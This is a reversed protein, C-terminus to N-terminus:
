ATSLSKLCRVHVFLIGLPRKQDETRDDDGSNKHETEHTNGLIRAQQWCGHQCGRHFLNGYVHVDLRRPPDAHVDERIGVDTKPSAWRKVDSRETASSSIGSNGQREFGGTRKIGGRRRPVAGGRIGQIREPFLLDRARTQRDNQIRWKQFPRCTPSPHCDVRRRTVKNSKRRRILRRRSGRSAAQVLAVSGTCSQAELVWRLFRATRTM